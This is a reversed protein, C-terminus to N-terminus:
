INYYYIFKVRDFANHLASTSAVYATPLAVVATIVPTAAVLIAFASAHASRSVSAPPCAGMLPGLLLM